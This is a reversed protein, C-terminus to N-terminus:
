PNFHFGYVIKVGNMEESVEDEEDNFYFNLAFLFFISILCSYLYMYLTYAILM